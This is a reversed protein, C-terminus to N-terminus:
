CGDGGCEKLCPREECKNELNNYQDARAVATQEDKFGEEVDVKDKNDHIKFESGNNYSEVQYRQPAAFAVLTTIFFLSFVFLFSISKNM